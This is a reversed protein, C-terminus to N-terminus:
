YRYKVITKQKVNEPVYKMFRLVESYKEHPTSEGYPSSENSM